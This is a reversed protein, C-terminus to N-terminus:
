ENVVQKVFFDLELQMNEDIKFFMLQPVEINYDTLPTIFQAQIRFGMETTLMSGDVTLPKEVGHIFITGAATVAYEGEKVLEARTLKGTFHTFPFKDTELYNERMHRNRLGIGTDLSNLDVEFYIESKNLLNDGEWFLYGDIKDTVGEFDEMPADSIFKVLNDQEKDVQYEGAMLPSILVLGILLFRYFQM